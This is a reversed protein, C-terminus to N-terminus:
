GILDSAAQVLDPTYIELLPSGPKVVDGPKALVRMVRGAYPSFVPTMFDENFAIKGTATKEERFGKLALPELTIGQMQPGDVRVTNTDVNTGAPLAPQIESVESTGRPSSVSIGQSTTFVRMAGLALLAGITIMCLTYWVGRTREPQPVLSPAEPAPAHPQEPTVLKVEQEVMPEM